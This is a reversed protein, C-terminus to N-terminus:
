AAKDPCCADIPSTEPHLAQVQARGSREAQRRVNHGRAIAPIQHGDIGIDRLFHSDLGRLVRESHRVEGWHRFGVIVRTALAVVARGVRRVLRRMAAARLRRGRQIAADIVLPSLDAASALINCASPAKTRRRETQEHEFLM